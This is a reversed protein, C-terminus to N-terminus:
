SSVHSTPSNYSVLRLVNWYTRLLRTVRLRATPIYPIDLYGLLSLKLWCTDISYDTSFNSM